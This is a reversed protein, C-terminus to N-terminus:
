GEFVLIPYEGSSINREIQEQLIDKYTEYSKPFRIILTSGLRYPRGMLNGTDIMEYNPVPSAEGGGSQRLDYLQLEYEKKITFIAARIGNTDIFGSSPVLYWVSANEKSDDCDIYLIYTLEDKPTIVFTQQETWLQLYSSRFPAVTITYTGDNYTWSIDLADEIMQIVPLNDYYLISGSSSYLSIAGDPKIPDSSTIKKFYLNGKIDIHDYSVHEDTLVDVINITLQTNIDDEEMQKFINIQIHNRRFPTYRNIYYEIPNDTIWSTRTGTHLYSRMYVQLLVEYILKGHDELHQFLDIESVIIYGQQPRELILIPCSGDFLNIYTFDTEPYQENKVTLDFVYPYETLTYTGTKYVQCESLSCTYTDELKRLTNGFSEVCLWINCNSALIDDISINGSGTKSNVFVFDANDYSVNLFSDISSIGNNIQINTPAISAPNSFLSLITNFFTNNEEGDDIIGIRINHLIDHRYTGNRQLIIRYTFTDPIWETVAPNYMYEEGIRKLEVNTPNGSEDFFLIDPNTFKQYMDIVNSSAPRSFIDTPEIILKGTKIASEVYALPIDIPTTDEKAAIYHAEPYIKM